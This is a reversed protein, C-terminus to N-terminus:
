SGSYARQIAKPNYGQIVVGKVLLVPVGRGGLSKHEQYATSSQEIDFDKYPIGSASLFARTQACNPCWSTSYLIVDSNYKAGYNPAQMTQMALLSFALIVVLGIPIWIKM